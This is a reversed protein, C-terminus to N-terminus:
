VLTAHTSRTQIKARTWCIMVFSVVYFVVATDSCLIKYGLLTYRPRQLGGSIESSDDDVFFRYGWTLLASLVSAVGFPSSAALMFDRFQNSQNGVTSVLMTTVPIVAFLLLQFMFTSTSAFIQIHVPKTSYAMGIPAISLFPLLCLVVGLMDRSQSVYMGFPFVFMLTALTGFIVARGIVTAPDVGIHDEVFFFM